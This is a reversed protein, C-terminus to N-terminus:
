RMGASLRSSLWAPGPPLVAADRTRYCEVWKPPPEVERIVKVRNGAAVTGVFHGADVMVAASEPPVKVVSDNLRLVKVPFM